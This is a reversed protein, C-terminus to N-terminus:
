ELHRLRHGCPPRLAHTQSFLMTIRRSSGRCGGSIYHKVINIHILNMIFLFVDRKNLFVTKFLTQRVNIEAKRSDNRESFATHLSLRSSFSFTQGISYAILYNIYIMKVLIHQKLLSKNLRADPRVGPVNILPTATPSDLRRSTRLPQRGIQATSLQMTICVVTLM